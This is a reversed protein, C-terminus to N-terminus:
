ACCSSLPTGFACARQGEAHNKLHLGLRERGSVSSDGGCRGGQGLGVGSESESGSGSGSVLHERPRVYGKSSHIGVSLGGM